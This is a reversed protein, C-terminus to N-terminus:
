PLPFGNSKLFDHVIFRDAPEYIGACARTVAFLVIREYEDDQLTKNLTAFNYLLGTILNLM